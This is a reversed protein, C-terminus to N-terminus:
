HVYKGSPMKIFDEAIVDVEFEINVLHQINSFLYKKLFAELSYEDM